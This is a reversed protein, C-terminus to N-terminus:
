EAALALVRELAADRGAFFDAARVPVPVDPELALRADGETSKVWRIAAAHFSWGSHPLTAPAPDGYLNPSGGSPEGVFTAGTSAELEAILNAAASFTTRGILVVLRGPRDHRQLM